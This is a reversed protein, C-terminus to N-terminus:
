HRNLSVLSYLWNAGTKTGTYHGFKLYILGEMTVTQLHRISKDTEEIFHSLYLPRLVM